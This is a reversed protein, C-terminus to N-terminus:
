DFAGAFGSATWVSARTGPAGVEVGVPTMRIKQSTLPVDKRLKPNMAVM